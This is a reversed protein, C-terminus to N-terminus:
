AGKRASRGNYGADTCTSTCWGHQTCFLGTTQLHMAIPEAAIVNVLSLRTGQVEIVDMAFHVRLSVVRAKGSKRRRSKVALTGTRTM